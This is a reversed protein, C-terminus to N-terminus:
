IKLRDSSRDETNTSLVCTGNFLSFLRRSNTNGTTKFYFINL